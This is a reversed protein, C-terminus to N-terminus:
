IAETFGQKLAKSKQGDKRKVFKDLSHQIWKFLDAVKASTSFFHFAQLMSTLDLQIPDFMQGVEM